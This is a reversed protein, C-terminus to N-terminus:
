SIPLSFNAMLVGSIVFYVIGTLIRFVMRGWPNKVLVWVVIPSVLTLYVGIVLWVVVGAFAFATSLPMAKDGVTLLALTLLGFVAAGILYPVMSDRDGFYREKKAKQPPVQRRQPVPANSM